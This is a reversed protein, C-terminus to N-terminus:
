CEYEVEVNELDIHSFPPNRDNADNADDALNTFDREETTKACVIGDAEITQENDANRTDDALDDRHSSKGRDANLDDASPVSPASSGSIKVVKELYIVRTCKRGETFYAVKIGQEELDPALRNLQRSLSNHAKPFHRPRYTAPDTHNALEKLLESATGKWVLDTNEMLCVIAEGVPSSEIVVRRSEERSRNFVKM